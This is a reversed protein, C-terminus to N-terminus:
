GLATWIEADGHETRTIRVPSSRQYVGLWQPGDYVLYGALLHRPVASVHGARPGGDHAILVAPDDDPSEHFTRVALEPTARDRDHAARDSSPSMAPTHVSM